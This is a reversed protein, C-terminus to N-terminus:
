LLIHPCCDCVVSCVSTQTTEHTSQTLKMGPVNGGGTRAQKETLRSATCYKLTRLGQNSATHSTNNGTCVAFSWSHAIVTPPSMQQLWPQTVSTSNRVAHSLTLPYQILHLYYELNTALSLPTYNCNGLTYQIYCCLM